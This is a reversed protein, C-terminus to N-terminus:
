VTCSSSAARRNRSCIMTSNSRRGARSHSSFHDLRGVGVIVSRRQRGILPVLQDGRVDRSAAFQIPKFLLVYRRCIDPDETALM